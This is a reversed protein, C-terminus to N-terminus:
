SQPEDPTPPLGPCLERARIQPSVWAAWNNRSMTTTLKACVADAPAVGRPHPNPWIRITGDVSGSVFLTPDPSVAVSVVQAQHGTFTYQRGNAASWLQVTYPDFSGAVIRDQSPDTSQSSFALGMVADGIEAPDGLPNGTNVDWRQIVGVASKLRATGWDTSGSALRRGDPSFAIGLVEAPRGAALHSQGSFSKPLRAAADAEWVERGTLDWLRVIGAVGGSALRDGHPNFSLDFVIAHDKNELTTARPTSSSVDWLTIQGDIGASALIDAVPSMAIATVPRETPIKRVTNTTLNWLRVNGDTSASAVEEGTWNFAVRTVVGAPEPMSRTQAGTYSDWLRVTGDVGGSAIQHGVPGTAVSTVPGQHGGLPEKLPQGVVANWFRLAHENGGSIIENDVIAVSLVLGQHGILPDGIRQRQAVDWLQVTKDNSGSVLRTGGASFAVSTVPATHGRGGPTPLQGATSLKGSDWFRVLNDAGGSAVLDDHPSFTVSMVGGRHADPQVPDAPPNDGAPLTNLNWIRIAGDAGGAALRDGAHNFAVTFIAGAPNNAITRLDNGDPRSLDIFGDVGASVLRQGDRSLAVSTVRGQHPRPLTKAVPPQDNLNWVQVTGEESGAAVVQGDASIAVNTLHTPRMPFSLCGSDSKAQVPGAACASNRLKELWNPSNTDWIRLGDSDAVALRHGVEAFAVGVVPAGVNAILDTSWRKVLADLLPEDNPKTAIKNAALLEQFARVDDGTNATTATTANGARALIAQADSVLKQAVDDQANRQALLQQHRAWILLGVAVLAVVVTCALVARLVRSGKRLAAAHAQADAARKSEAAALKKAAELEAERQRQEADLRDNEATRCAALYERDTEDLNAALDPRQGLREAAALRDVAHILWAISKGSKAWDRSARKVGELVALLASDETLWGGLLSWQRLLAEHAPEITTEGTRALRDITLLRQEVLNHLLPRSDAPIESLRAVRRRPAGTDPDIDALWPILGQRLLALRHARDAPVPPQTEATLAQEVAEEISGKIGGLNRYDSLTLRGNVGNELYLREMTFSLLPLADKAGGVEIDELLVGVLGDDIKLQRTTEALRTAPGKIVEAYSGHPMPGLDFPVKRVGELAKVEQLQTYSDSRIAIVVIVAPEDEDLLERLLTLLRQAEEQGEARFLEEGQDISVVVAPPKTPADAESAEPAAADVLAQLIPRLTSAGGDIAARIKSRALKIGAATRASELARLLGNDGTIAAREPRVIPLPLFDRDYRTMRAFLGARLFSSKGAGSAGLIVLLRPPPDERLGRLQDLAEFTPADRGFFIGADDAELPRLGRYPPRDPDDEPPWEFFRPDLGAKVLGARLRKLGEQSFTVHCEEHTRPLTVRFQRHDRGSALDVVQWTDSLEAPLDAPEFSEILVGFLRKGLKHALSLETHCWSSGLWARSVLFLVAECRSAAENLAREWREGAAIGRDAALDLFVDDWGEAALWDSLGVAQANNVSSHSLFIRAM